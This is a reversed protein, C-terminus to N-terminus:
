EASVAPAVIEREGKSAKEKGHLMQSIRKGWSPKREKVASTDIEQVSVTAKKGERGRHQSHTHLQQHHPTKPTRPAPTVVDSTASESKSRTPPLTSDRPSRPPSITGLRMKEEVLQRLKQQRRQSGSLTRELGDDDIVTQKALKLPPPRNSATPTRSETSRMLQSIHMPAPKKEKYQDLGPLPPLTRNLDLGREKGKIARSEEEDEPRASRFSSWSGKRRLVGGRWWSGSNGSSGRSSSRSHNNESRTSRVSDMSARPRIYERIGERISGSRSQPRVPELSQSTQRNLPQQAHCTSSSTRRRALEQAMWAKAKEDAISAAETDRLVQESIRHHTSSASKRDAPTLAVSTIGTSPRHDYTTNTRSTSTSTGTSPGNYDICAAASTKPRNDLEARIQALPDDSVPKRQRNIGSVATHTPELPEFHVDEINPIHHPRSSSTAKSASGTTSRLHIHSSADPNSADRRSRRTFITESDGNQQLREPRQIRKANKEAMYKQLREHHSLLEHLDSSPPTSEQLIKACAQKLDSEVKPELVPREIVFSVPSFPPSDVVKATSTKAGSSLM